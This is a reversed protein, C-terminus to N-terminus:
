GIIQGDLKIPWPQPPSFPTSLVEYSLINGIYFRRIRDNQATDWLWLTAGHPDLSNIEFLGGTHVVVDGTTKKEYTLTVQLKNRLAEILPDTSDIM